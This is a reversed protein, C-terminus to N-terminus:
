YGETTWLFREIHQSANLGTGEVLFSYMNIDKTNMVYFGNYSVSIDSDGIVLRNYKNNGYPISLNVTKSFFAGSTVLPKMYGWQKILLNREKLYYGDTDNGGKYIVTADQDQWHTGDYIFEHVEGPNIFGEGAPQGGVYITAAGTNNVNLKPAAAEAIINSDTGVCTGCTNGATFLVAIRAGAALVFGPCAVAKEQTAAETGCTGFHSINVSGDFPVGDVTKSSALKTATGANGSVSEQLPHQHDGRAFTSVESGVAATAAAAKPTTTTAKAHGYNTDSAAGYTTANSAHNIPAAGLNTRAGAADTAGTGGKDVALTGTANALNKARTESAALLYNIAALVQTNDLGDPTGGGAEVIAALEEEVSSLGLNIASVAASAKNFLWNAHQAPFVEAPLYGAAYKEAIPQVKDGSNAFEPFDILDQPNIM